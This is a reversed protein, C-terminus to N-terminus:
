FVLRLVNIIVIAAIWLLAYNEREGDHESSLPAKREGVLARQWGSIQGVRERLLAAKSVDTVLALWEPFRTELADLHRTARVLERFGPKVDTRLMAVIDRQAMVEDEPQADFMTRQDIALSLRMGDEGFERLRCRDARWEFAETAAVLLIEHGPKWGSALLHAVHAEFHLRASINLLAPHGLARELVASFAGLDPRARGLMLAACEAMFDPFVAGALAQPDVHAAAKEPFVAERPAAKALAAPVVVADAPPACEDHPLRSWQLAWEYAERLAQFGAADREQDILKVERAYARRIDAMSANLDLQLRDLFYPLSSM